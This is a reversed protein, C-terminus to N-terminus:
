CFLLTCMQFTLFSFAIDINYMALSSYLILPGASDGGGVRPCRRRGGLAELVTGVAFPPDTRDFGASVIWRKGLVSGRRSIACANDQLLTKLLFKNSQVRNRNSTQCAFCESRKRRFGIDLKATGERSFVLSPMTLLPRTLIRDDPRRPLSVSPSSLMPVLGAIIFQRANEAAEALGLHM